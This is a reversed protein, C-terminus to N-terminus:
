AADFSGLFRIEPTLEIGHMERVADRARRILMLVDHASAGGTNVIFNAHLDSIQAGGVREGKLGAEEILRGAPATRPTASSVGPTRSRSRSTADVASSRQSWRRAFGRSTAESWPSHRKSSSAPGQRLDTTRYGWTIEPGRRRVLGVGPTYLTVSEVVSDIWQEGTGANMILAGGLTGPIGVAFEMGTLGRSFAEQVLAALAVGAGSQLSDGEHTHRKFEKGLVIVAGDYGSDAALVNSGKGLVTWEVRSAALVDTVLALDALNGCEVFLAAPGGIRYTTHKSLPEDRKLVGTVRGSLRDYAGAVSM